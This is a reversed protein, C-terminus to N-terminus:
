IRIRFALALITSWVKSRQIMLELVLHREVVVVDADDVDGPVADCPLPRHDTEGPQGRADVSAPARQDVLHRLPVRLEVRQCGRGEGVADRRQPIHNLADVVSRAHRNVM